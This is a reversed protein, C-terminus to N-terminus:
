GGTNFNFDRGINLLYSALEARLGANRYKTGKDFGNCMDGSALRDGFRANNRRRTRPRSQDTCM